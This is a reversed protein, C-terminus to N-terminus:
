SALRCAMEPYLTAFGYLIDLRCPWRDTNIDYARIMRLSMGLQKDSVRSAMDVGGPLPLDASAFAFAERHFGLGQPTNTNAAGLMTLAADNAPLSDVTKFPGSVIISPSIPITLNGSSDSSKDGTVVFQRLTGTSQRNQPNVAYVDAITFIDGRLLRSAAASTWADTILSSGSQSAGNVLPSGGLPGVVHTRLNQDMSFKFGAALGMTGRRYQEAISTSEQFLGKLVDVIKAEMAPGLVMSRQPGKPCAEENLRQGVQLYLLFTAPVTGPAGLTNYIDKYLNLGDFDIANAVHAIGPYIFRESFDDINLALDLSSFDIDVGRQTSLTLPVQSETAAELALAQGVRGTYRVPKRINLTTGIKAGERGYKSDFDRRIYKTFVLVNEIVRMSERTIMSITLLTNAM